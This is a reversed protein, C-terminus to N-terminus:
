LEEPVPHLPAQGSLVRVVERAAMMAMNCVAERTQAGAHPTLVVRPLALLRPNRVPEHAFTDLGAGALTGNELAAVLDDEVVLEGRATNILIAAKKMQGMTHANIIGATAPTVPAHLSLVDSRALVEPLSCYQVGYCATLEQQPYPDCAIIDMAFAAARRAVESGIRGTGVLGLTKGALEGGIVRRWSGARVTRDLQPIRRAVALMLGLTLEAVAISNAGPTITVPICHRRAAAMDINDYGVGHKAIIKLNPTAAAIVAATVRDAGAILADMGVILSLLEAELLPRDVPNWYLTCGAGALIAQAAPVQAFSRATILVRPM